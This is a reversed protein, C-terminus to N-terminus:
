AALIALVFRPDVPRPGAALDLPLDAGERGEGAGPEFCSPSRILSSAASATSPLPSGPSTSSSASVMAQPSPASRGVSTWRAPCARRHAGVLQQAAKRDGFPCSGALSGSAASGRIQRRRREHAPLPLVMPRRHLCVSSCASNRIVPSSAVSWAAPRVSAPTWASAIAAWTSTAFVSVSCRSRSPSLASTRGAGTLTSATSGTASSQCARKEQM